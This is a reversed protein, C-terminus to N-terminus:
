KRAWASLPASRPLPGGRRVTGGLTVARLGWRRGLCAKGWGRSGEREQMRAGLQTERVSCTAPLAGPGEGGGLGGAGEQPAWALPPAATQLWGLM